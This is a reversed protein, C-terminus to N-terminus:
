RLRESLCLTAPAPCGSGAPALGMRDERPRRAARRRKAGRPDIRQLFVALDSARVEVYARQPRDEELLHFWGQELRKYFLAFGNADYRLVRVRDARRNVFV